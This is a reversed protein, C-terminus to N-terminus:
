ISPRLGYSTYDGDLELWCDNTLMESVAVLQPRRPAPDPPLLRPSYPVRLTSTVRSGSTPMRVFNATADRSRPRRRSPPRATASRSGGAKVASCPADVTIRQMHDVNPRRLFVTAVFMPIWFLQSPRGSCGRGVTDHRRRRPTAPVVALRPTCSGRLRRYSSSTAQSTRRAIDRLRAQEDPVSTTLVRSFAGRVAFDAFLLLRSCRENSSSRAYFLSAPSRPRRWCRECVREPVRNRAVGLADGSTPPTRSRRGNSPSARRLNAGVEVAAEISRRASRAAPRAWCEPSSSTMAEPTRLRGTRSAHPSPRVAPLSM